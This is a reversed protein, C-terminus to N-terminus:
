VTFNAELSQGTNSTRKPSKDASVRKLMIGRELIGRSSSARVVAAGSRPESLFPLGTTSTTAKTSSAALGRTTRRLSPLVSGRFSRTFCIFSFLAFACSFFFCSCFNFSFLLRLLRLVSPVYTVLTVTHRKRGICGHEAQLALVIKSHPIFQAVLQRGQIPIGFHPFFAERFILRRIKPPPIKSKMNLEYMTSQAIFQVVGDDRVDLPMTHAIPARVKISEDAHEPLQSSAHPDEWLFVCILVAVTLMMIKM